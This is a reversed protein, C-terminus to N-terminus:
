RKEWHKPHEREYKVKCSYKCFYVIGREERIKYSYEALVGYFVFPEKCYGCTKHHEHQRPTM